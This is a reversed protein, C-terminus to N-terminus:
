LTDAVSGVFDILSMMYFEAFCDFRKHGLHTYMVDRVTKSMKTRVLNLLGKYKLARAFCRAESDSELLYLGLAFMNLTDTSADSPTKVQALYYCLYNRLDYKTLKLTRMHEKPDSSTLLTRLPVLSSEYSMGGYYRCLTDLTQRATKSPLENRLDDRTPEDDLVLRAYDSAYMKSVEVDGNTSAATMWKDFVQDGSVALEVTPKVTPKVTPEVTPKVTPKVTPLVAADMVACRSRCYELASLVLHDDDSSEDDSATTFRTRSQVAGKPAPLSAKLNRGSM